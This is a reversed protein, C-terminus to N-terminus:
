GSCRRPSTGPRSRRLPRSGPRHGSAGLGVLGREPDRVAVLVGHVRVHGDRDGTPVDGGARAARRLRRRRVCGGVDRVLRLGVLVLRQVLVEAVAPATTLRPVPARTADGTAAARTAELKTHLLGVGVLDGGPAANLLWFATFEFVGTEIAPPFTEEPGLEASWLAVDFADASTEFLALVSWSWCRLWFMPPPEHRAPQPPGPPKWSPACTASVLWHAAPAATLLWFATFPFAGAEVAPPFM